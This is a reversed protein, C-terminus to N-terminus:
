RAIAPAILMLLEVVPAVFVMSDFRDLAGGHGPLLNGYDKVGCERKIASFSLDGLQCVLSGLFGYVVLLLYSVQYGVCDLIFGYILLVVITSVFGGISGEITKNPSLHPVLKHKGLFSGAFYAGSDSSFAVCFPLLIFAGGREEAGLRVLAALLTPIVIGAVLVTFVTSYPVRSDGERFSLMMDCFTVLVLLFAAAYGVVEPNELTAGLSLAAASVMPYIRMRTKAEPAACKVLEWAAIATIAAVLCAFVWLPLLFIVVLLLPIGIAAVIIRTKM